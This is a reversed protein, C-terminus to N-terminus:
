KFTLGLTEATDVGYLLRLQYYNFWFRVSYLPRWWEKHSTINNQSYGTIDAIERWDIGQNEYVGTDLYTLYAEYAAQKIAKQAKNTSVAENWKFVARKTKFPIFSHGTRSDPNSNKWDSLHGVNHRMAASTRLFADTVKIDCKEAFESMGPIALEADEYFMQASEKWITPNLQESVVWGPAIQLPGACAYKKYSRGNFSYKIAASYDGGSQELAKDLTEQYVLPIRFVESDSVPMEVVALSLAMFPDPFATGKSVEDAQSYVEELYQKAGESVNTPFNFISEAKISISMSEISLDEVISAKPTPIPTVITKPTVELPAASVHEVTVLRFASRSEYPTFDSAYASTEYKITTNPLSSSMSFTWSLLFVIIGVGFFVRLINQKLM